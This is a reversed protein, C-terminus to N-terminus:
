RFGLQSEDALTLEIARTKSFNQITIKIKQNTVNISVNKCIHYYIFSVFRFKLYSISQIAVLLCYNLSPTSVEEM